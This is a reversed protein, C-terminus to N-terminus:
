KVAGECFDADSIEELVPRSHDAWVLALFHRAEAPTRCQGLDTVHGNRSVIEVATGRATHHLRYAAIPAPLCVINGSVRVIRRQRFGQERQFRDRWPASCILRPATASASSSNGIM